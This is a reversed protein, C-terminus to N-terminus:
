GVSFSSCVEHSCRLSQSPNGGKWTVHGRWQSHRSDVSTQAWHAKVKKFHGSTLGNNQRSIFRDQSHNESRQFSDSIKTGQHFAQDGTLRSSGSDYCVIWSRCKLTFRISSYPKNFVSQSLVLNHTIWENIKTIKSMRGIQIQTVWLKWQFSGKLIQQQYSLIWSMCSTGLRISMSSFNLLHILNDFDIAQPNILSRSLEKVPFKIDDRLQSMWLLKGIATRFKSHMEKECQIQDEKSIQQIKVGNTTSKGTVGFLGLLNDILKQPFEMTIQGSKKVKIIRGLFEVPNESTLYEVHKLSFTEQIDQIFKQVAQAEGAVVLDDVYAMVMLNLHGSSDLGTFTCPDSKMQSLSLSQSSSEFSSAMIETFRQSWIASAQTELCYARSVSDRSTGSCWHIGKIWWNAYQSVSVGCRVCLSEMQSDSEHPTHGQTDHSPTHSCVKVRQWHNSHIRKGCIEGQTSRVQTRHGVKVWHDEGSRWKITSQSASYWISWSRRQKILHAGEQHSGQSGERHIRSSRRSVM